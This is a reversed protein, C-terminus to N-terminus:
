HAPGRRKKKGTLSSTSGSHSASDTASKLTQWHKTAANLVTQALEIICASEFHVVEAQQALASCAVACSMIAKDTGADINDQVVLRPLAMHLLSAAAVKLSCNWERLIM